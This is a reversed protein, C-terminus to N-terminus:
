DPMTEFAKNVEWDYWERSFMAPEPHQKSQFSERYKDLYEVLTMSENPDFRHEKGEITILLGGNVAQFIFDGIKVSNM